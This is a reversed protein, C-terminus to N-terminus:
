ETHDFLTPEPDSEWVLETGKTHGVSYVSYFPRFPLWDAPSAECVIVQGSLSKVWAALEAYDIDEPGDRYEHGQHRYPPDVFWTATIDPADRYDGHVVDVRDGFMAVWRAIRPQAKRFNREARTSVTPRYTNPSGFRGWPVDSIRDGARPQSLALIEESSLSLILDWQAVIREDSEILYARKAAGKSLWYCAYGAAGAFPEVIVDHRPPTYRHANGHKAGFYYFM